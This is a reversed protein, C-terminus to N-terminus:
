EINRFIDRWFSFFLVHSVLDGCIADHAAGAFGFAGLTGNGGSVSLVHNVGGLALIATGASLNTGGTGAYGGSKSIAGRFFAKGEPFAKKRAFLLL